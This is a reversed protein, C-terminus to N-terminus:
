KDNNKNLETEYAKYACVCDTRAVDLAEDKAYLDRLSYYLASRADAYAADAEEWEKYLEKLDKKVYVTADRAVRANTYISEANDYFYNDGVTLKTMIKKVLEDSANTSANAVADAEEMKKELEELKNTM